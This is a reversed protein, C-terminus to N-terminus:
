RQPPLRSACPSTQPWSKGMFDGKGLLTIPEKGQTSLIQTELGVQNVAQAERWGRFGVDGDECAQM